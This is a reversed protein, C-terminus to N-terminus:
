SIEWKPIEGSGELKSYQPVSDKGVLPSFEGPDAAYLGVMFEITANDFDPMCNTMDIGEETRRYTSESGNPWHVRFGCMLDDDDVLIEMLGKYHPDYPIAKDKHAGWYKRAAAELSFFTSVFIKAKTIITNLETLSICRASFMGKGSRSRFEQETLIFDAHSISNRLWGSYFDDFIIGISFGAETSLKTIIEIKQKPYILGNNKFKKKQKSNFFIYYPNPSYGKGLQFRLLNTLVEYPADMEVIQSYMLLGMRWITMGQDAFSDEPLDMQMISNLDELISRSELYPDHGKDEMGVIRLLSAFYKIIDGSVPDDPLFLPKLIDIYQQRTAEIEDDTM